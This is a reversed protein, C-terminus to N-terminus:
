SAARWALLAISGDAADIRSVDTFGSTRALQMLVDPSPMTAGPELLTDVLAAPERAFALLLGGGDRLARRAQVLWEVSSARRALVPFALMSLGDLSMDAVRRLIDLASAPEVTIGDTRAAEALVANPEAATVDFGRAALLALWDGACALALVRAHAPMRAAFANAWALNRANRTTDAAVVALAARAAVAGRETERQDAVQEIQAFAQSLSHSWHNIAYVRQRLFSLEDVRERLFSLEDLRSTQADIATHLGEIRGSLAAELESVSTHLATRATDLELTVAHLDDLRRRLQSDTNALDDMRSGLARSATTAAHASAAFLTEVARQHRALLPLGALTAGWQLAYGLVPVRVAKALAYRPWLGSIRVGIRRGEPSWRLNGLVEAKTRGAALLGLQVQAEAPDPDRKLIARFACQVFELYHADTLAGIPYVLRDREITDGSDARVQAVPTPRALLPRQPLAAAQVRIEGRVQQLYDDNSESSV